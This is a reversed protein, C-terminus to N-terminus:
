RYGNGSLEKQWSKGVLGAHYYIRKVGLMRLVRTEDEEPYRKYLMFCVDRPHPDDSCDFSLTKQEDDGYVRVGWPTKKYDETLAAGLLSLVQDEPKKPPTTTASESHSDSPQPAPQQRGSDGCGLLSLLLALVSYTPLRM